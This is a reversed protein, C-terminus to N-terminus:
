GCNGTYCWQAPFVHQDHSVSIDWVKESNVESIGTIKIYDEFKNVSSPKKNVVLNKLKNKKEENSITFVNDFKVVNAGSIYVSYIGYSRDYTKGNPFKPKFRDTYYINSNIGAFSLLKSFDVALEKRSSTLSIRIENIDKSVYGDASLLGDVFGKIYEDNGRWVSNPITKSNPNIGYRTFLTEIFGRDSFQAVHEVNRGVRYQECLNTKRVKLTNLINVVKEGIIKNPFTIGCNYKDVNQRKSIVGNGIFYGVFFGEDRTLSMDGCIGIDENRNLPIYDGVRLDSTAVRSITNTTVDLVPWKHKHTSKVTKYKGGLSLELLKENEGSLFCNAKAWTGDLSKVLFKKGELEEIPFIGNYTHVLTGAPMSPNTANITEGYNLPNLDNARDLFLVGPEARNYTSEMILNWLYKVSVTKYVKVPYEKRSWEKINGNWEQKYKEFTTEPFILDWKDLETLRQEDIVGSKEMADIQFVKDMFNDSINVSVNFKTLRGQQQKATIFEIIDPHSDDITGMMAGKRIKGKGKSNSSKKGSGATIIESTKDYLEMYKVAGPSEVGIGNIFSGRPRCFSFNKGWGGKSKLTLAQNKLDDIIGNLSDIDYDNLPSVFCNILTTGKFDTGANAYIRGGSTGKFDSLLDTFKEEWEQQQEPTNEVSAIAKAVRSFTTDVTNDSHDKYTQEWIDRSFDDVFQTM